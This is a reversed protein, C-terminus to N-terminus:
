HFKANKKFETIQCDQYNFTKAELKKKRGKAVEAYQEGCTTKQLDDQPGIHDVVSAKKGQSSVLPTRRKWALVRDLESHVEGGVEGLHGIFISASHSTRRQNEPGDGVTRPM